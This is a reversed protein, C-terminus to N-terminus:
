CKKANCYSMRKSFAQSPITFNGFQTDALFIDGTAANM